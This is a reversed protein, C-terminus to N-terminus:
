EFGVLLDSMIKEHQDKRNFYVEYRRRIPIRDTHESM